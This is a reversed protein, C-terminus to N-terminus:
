LGSQPTGTLYHQVVPAVVHVLEDRTMATLPEAKIVYRGVAVGMLHAIALAAGQPNAEDGLIQDQMQPGFTDRLLDMAEPSTVASRFIAAITPGTEPSEWLGFYTEALREGVTAPDGRLAAALQGPATTGESLTAAILGPKDGFFHRILATDVGAQAAIARMSAVNYGHRAFLDQAADLIAQRTGSDGTRRGSPRKRQQVQKDTDSM